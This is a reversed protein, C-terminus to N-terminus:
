HSVRIEGLMLCLSLSDRLGVLRNEFAIENGFIVAYGLNKLCVLHTQEITSEAFIM